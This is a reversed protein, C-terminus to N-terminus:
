RKGEEKRLPFADVGMFIRRAIGLREGVSETDLGRTRQLAPRRPDLLLYNWSLSRYDTIFWLAHCIPSDRADHSSVFPHFASPFVRFLPSFFPSNVRPFSLSVPFLLITFLTSLLLFSSLLLYTFSPHVSPPTILSLTLSALHLNLTTLMFSLFLCWDLFLLFMGVCDLKCVLILEEFIYGFFSFVILCVLFLIGNLGRGWFFSFHYLSFFSEDM